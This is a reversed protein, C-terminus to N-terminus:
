RQSRVVSRSDHSFVCTVPLTNHPGGFHDKLRMLRLRIRPTETDRGTAAELVQCPWGHDDHVLAELAGETNGLVALGCAMPELAIRGGADNGLRGVFALDSCRYADVLADGELYGARIVRAGLGWQEILRDLAAEQEGAGIYLLWVSEDGLSKLAELLEAQGRNAIITKEHSATVNRM